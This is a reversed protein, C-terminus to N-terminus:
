DEHTLMITIVMEGDDGSGAHLHLTTLKPKHSKGDRPVCYLQFPTRTEGPKASRAANTAMWVVDWLRQPEDQYTQRLSDEESWAVCEAYVGQTLAVACRFGAEAAMKSVNILVGDDIAEARTYVSIM